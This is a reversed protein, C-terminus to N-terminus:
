HLGITGMKPPEPKSVDLLGDQMTPELITGIQSKAKASTNIPKQWYIDNEAATVGCVIPIIRNDKLGYYVRIGVCTDRLMMNRMMDRASIFLEAVAITSSDLSHVGPQLALRTKLANIYVQVQPKTIFHDWNNISNDCAIQKKDGCGSSWLFLVLMLMSALLISLFNFHKM